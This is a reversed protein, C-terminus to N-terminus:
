AGRSRRLAARVAIVRRALAGPLAALIREARPPQEVRQLLARADRADGRALLRRAALVRQEALVRRVREGDRAMYAPDSAWLRETMKVRALARKEQDASSVRVGVDHGWQWATETALYAATGARALRAGCEWDEYIPLDEAFRLAEGAAERRVLLTQAALFNGELFAPYLDGVHVQFDPRGAPLAAISSYPVGPGLIEDWPRPDRHWGALGGHQDPVGHQRLGFDSICFLVDPRAELLRRGLVLRDPFWEDDSDLFAVLPNRAERIGRNRARGVGGNASKIYRVRGGFRAIVKHTDDTSGDDVVIIEDGAEAAAIVSSVPIAILSARNFTPIVVSARLGSMPTM